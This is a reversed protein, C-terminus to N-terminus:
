KKDLVIKSMATPITSIAIGYKTLSQPMHSRIPITLATV